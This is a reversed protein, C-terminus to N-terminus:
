HLFCRGLVWVSALGFFIGTGTVAGSLPPTWRGSGDVRALVWRACEDRSTVLLVGLMLGAGAGLLTSVNM